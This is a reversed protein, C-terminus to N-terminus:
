KKIVQAPCDKFMDSTVRNGEGDHWYEDYNRKVREMDWSNAPVYLTKLSSCKAFMGEMTWAKDTNFTSIDLTSLSKCGYFMNSFVRVMGTKFNSLNLSKLSSCGRFMETMNNVKSTNFSSLNISTLKECYEFMGFMEEVNDTKFSALNLSTLKKCDSFMWVMDKVNGTKLSALNLSTLSSCNGFMSGMRTVKSTNLNELGTISTLNEMGYFWGKTSTINTVQKFSPTIVVKKVQETIDFYPMEGQNDLPVEFVNSSNTPKEKGCNPCFKHAVAVMKGCNKCKVPTQTEAPKAGYTFTLVGNSLKAWAKNQAWASQAMLMMGALVMTLLMLFRKTTPIRM